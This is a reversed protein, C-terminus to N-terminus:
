CTHLVSRALCRAIRPHMAIPGSCLARVMLKLLGMPFFTRGFQAQLVRRMLSSPPPSPPPPPSPHSATSTRHRRTGEVDHRQVHERWLGEFEDALGHVDFAPNLPYLDAEQLSCQTPPHSSPHTLPIPAHCCPLCWGRGWRCESRAWACSPPSGASPSSPPGPPKWRQAVGCGHSKPLPPLGGM